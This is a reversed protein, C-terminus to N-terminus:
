VGHMFLWFSFLILEKDRRISFVGQLMAVSHSGGGRVQIFLKPLDM